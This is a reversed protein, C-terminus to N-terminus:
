RGIDTITDQMNRLIREPFSPGIGTGRGYGGEEVPRSERNRLEENSSTANYYRAASHARVTDARVQSQRERETKIQEDRLKWDQQLVHGLTARNSTEQAETQARSGMYTTTNEETKRQQSMLRSQETTRYADVASSAIRGVARGLEGQTNEMHPASGGGHAAGSSAAGASASSASAGQPSGASPTSAGGQQYALIPNLGAARMDNMSRQYATNSMQELWDRTHKAQGASFANMERGYEQGALMGQWNFERSIGAQEANFRQSEAQSSAAQAANFQAQQQSLQANQANASAAGAASMMGGGLNAAASILAPALAMFM